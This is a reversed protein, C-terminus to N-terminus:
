AALVTFSEPASIGDANTLKLLVPAAPLGPPVTVQVSTATNSNAVITGATSGFEVKTANVLDFGTLTITTGVKGSTPSIAVINPVSSVNVEFGVENLIFGPFIPLGQGAGFVFNVAIDFIGATSISFKTIALNTETIGPFTITPIKFNEALYANLDGLSLDVTEGEPLSFVKPTQNIDATDLTIQHTGITVTVHGGVSTVSM